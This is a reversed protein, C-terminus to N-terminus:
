PLANEGAEVEREEDEDEEEEEAEEEEMEEDEDGILDGGPVGIVRNAVRTYEWCNLM